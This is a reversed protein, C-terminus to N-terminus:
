WSQGLRDSIYDIQPSQPDCCCRHQLPELVPLAPMVSIGYLHPAAACTAWLIESEASTVLQSRFLYGRALCRRARLVMMAYTAIIVARSAGPRLAGGVVAPLLATRVLRVGDLPMSMDLVNLSEFASRLLLLALQDDRWGALSMSRDGEFHLRGDTHRHLQGPSISCLLRRLTSLYIQTAAYGSMYGHHSPAVQRLTARSQWVQFVVPPYLTSMCGEPYPVLAQVASKLIVRRDEGEEGGVDIAAAEHLWILRRHASDLWARFPAFAREVAGRQSYFELLENQRLPVGAFPHGCVGCCGPRKFISGTLGYPGLSAACVQCAQELPCGHFPCVQMAALQFWIAHFGGQMCLPCYRLQPAWLVKHLRWIPGDLSAEAPIWDWGFKRAVREYDIWNTRYFDLKRTHSGRKTVLKRASEVGLGNLASLRLVISLTSEAKLPSWYSGSWAQDAM